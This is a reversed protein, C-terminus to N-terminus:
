TLTANIAKAFSEGHRILVDALQFTTVEIVGQKKLSYPDVVLEMAGFMAIFMDAWNGFVLANATGGTTLSASMTKSCQTTSRSAYGLMTGQDLRGQWLTQGSAVLTNAPFEATGRLLGAEVPNTLWGMSEAQANKDFIGSVMALLAVLTTGAANTVDKSYVSPAAYIGTPQGNVGSGHIASLDIALGHAIALENRAWAEVDLSAQMLLQRTFPINGMLTKPQMLALGLSPEGSAVNAAPNEPVWFVTAATTQKPFAVPGTLGTLVTAGSEIVRARPRLFEILQGPTEPVLETGKAATLSDLTAGAARSGDFSGLPALVGGKDPAGAPMMSRLTQHVEAELGEFKRGEALAVAGRVAKVYSYNRLDKEPVIARLAEAAPQARGATKKMEVIRAAVAEVSMTSGVFDRALIDVGNTKCIGRIEEARQEENSADVTALTAREAKEQEEYGPEGPKLKMNRDEKAPEGGSKVTKRDDSRGVGVTIDAPVPVISSEMPTWKTARLYLVDDRMEELWDDIRYGVSIDKRIGDDVDQRVERAKASRSFRADGRLVKDADLRINEVIGVQTRTDHDLLLPLGGKARSLDVAGAEHVLIETYYWRKVEAESSIAIEYISREDMSAGCDSCTEADDPMTAGCDPCVQSRKTLKEHRVSITAERTANRVDEPKIKKM